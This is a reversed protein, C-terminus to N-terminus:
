TVIRVKFNKFCGYLEKAWQGIINYEKSAAGCSQQHCIGCGRKKPDRQIDVKDDLNGTEYLVVTESVFQSL